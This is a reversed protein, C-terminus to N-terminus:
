APPEVARVRGGLYVENAEHRLYHVGPHSEDVTGFVARAEAEKDPSYLSQIEMTALLVGEPDRLAIKDGERVNDAFAQTVDLTIPMPWLVGSTLRMRELVSLYDREGLFGELPSFAGNALLELDCLQRMSLDWSPLDRAERKEQGA